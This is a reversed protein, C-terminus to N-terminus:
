MAFPCRARPTGGVAYPGELKGGQIKEARRRVEDVEKGEYKRPGMTELRYGEPQFEKSPISRPHAMGIMILGKQLWMWPTSPIPMYWPENMYSPPHSMPAYRDSAKDLKSLQEDDASAEYRYGPPFAPYQIVFARMHFASHVFSTLWAPPQPAKVAARLRDMMLTSVVIRGGNKLFNPVNFLLLDTTAEAVKRSKENPLMNEEEYAESWDLMEQLEVPIEEIGMRRGVESFFVHWAQEELPTLCRWEFRHAWLAPERIFTSLTYLLDSNTIVKYHSHQLNIRAIAIAGRPDLPGASEVVGSGPGVMPYRIFSGILVNTDVYRRGAKDMDTFEASSLLVDSITEIGYTLFLAFELAKTITFPMDFEAGPTLIAQAEAPTMPYQERTPAHGDRGRRLPPPRALGHRKAYALHTAKIMSYRTLHVYGLYSVIVVVTYTMYSGYPISMTHSHSNSAALHGSRLFLRPGRRM